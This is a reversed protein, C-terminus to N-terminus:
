DDPDMHSPQELSPNAYDDILSEKVKNKEKELELKTKISNVYSKTLTKNNRVLFDQAAKLLNSRKDEEVGAEQLINGVKNNLKARNEIKQSQLEVEDIESAPNTYDIEDLKETITQDLIQHGHSQISLRANDHSDLTTTNLFQQRSLEGVVKTSVETNTDLDKSLRKTDQENILGLVNLVAYKLKDGM